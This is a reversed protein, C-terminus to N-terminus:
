SGLERRIRIGAGAEFASLHLMLAYAFIVIGLMELVQETTAVLAYRLNNSGLEDTNLLIGEILEFGAAGAVFVAAALVFLRRIQGPLDLVFRVYALGYVLILAAALYLWPEVVGPHPIFQDRIVESARQHLSVAEDASLLLLILSLVIWHLLYPGRRARTLAACLAALLACAFLGLTSFWDAFSLEGRPDFLLFYERAPYAREIADDALVYVYLETLVGAVAMAAVILLLGNRVKRPSVPISVRPQPRDGIPSDGPHSGGLAEEHDTPRM